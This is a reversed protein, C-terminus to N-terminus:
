YDLEGRYMTVRQRPQQVLFRYERNGRQSYFWGDKEKYIKRLLMLASDPNDDAIKSIDELQAMTKRGNCGCLAAIVIGLYIFTLKKM